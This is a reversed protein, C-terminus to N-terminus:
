AYNQIRHRDSTWAIGPQGLSDLAAQGERRTSALLVREVRLQNILIRKVYEDTIQSQMLIRPLFETVM